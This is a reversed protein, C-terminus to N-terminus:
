PKKKIVKLIAPCLKWYKNNYIISSHKKTTDIDKCTNRIAEKAFNHSGYILMKLVNQLCQINSESFTIANEVRVLIGM